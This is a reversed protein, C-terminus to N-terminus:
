PIPQSQRSWLSHATRQFQSKYGWRKNELVNSAMFTKVVKIKAAFVYTPHEVKTNGMVFLNPSRGLKIKWQPFVLQVGLKNKAASIFTTFVKMADFKSKIRSFLLQPIFDLGLCIGFLQPGLCNWPIPRRIWSGTRDTANSNIPM